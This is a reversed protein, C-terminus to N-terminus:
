SAVEAAVTHTVSGLGAVDVRVTSGPKAVPAGDPPGLLVVDGAELTMFETIDALLRPLDRVLRDLTRRHVAAGDISIVVEAAAPDFGPPSATESMPCFGDRCRQRVAPRYYSEHPLTVDSVVRYGAVYSMADSADVDTATRGIVAGLTGDIRVDGPATVVSGDAAFTNRPKIYLVPAVPPAKYPPADFAAGLREVTAPDNLLVGYVTGPATTGHSASGAPAGPAAVASTGTQHRTEASTQM